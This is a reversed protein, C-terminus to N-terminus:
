ETQGERDKAAPEFGATETMLREIVPWFFDEGPYGELRALEQGAADVLVFTPTFMVRRAFSLDDPLPDHLDVRRLPAFRGVATKPWIPAIQENWQRCYACGRQEVMVLEQAAAALASLAIAVAALAARLLATHVM